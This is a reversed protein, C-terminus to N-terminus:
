NLTESHLLLVKMNYKMYHKWLSVELSLFVTAQKEKQKTKEEEINNHQTPFINHCKCGSWCEGKNGWGVMELVSEVPIM